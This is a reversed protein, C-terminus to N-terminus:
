QYISSKIEQILKDLGLENCDSILGLTVFKKYSEITEQQNGTKILRATDNILSLIESDADTKDTYNQYLKKLEDILGGSPVSKSSLEMVDPEPETEEEPKAVIKGDEAFIIEPFDTGESMKKVASYFQFLTDPNNASFTIVDGSHLKINVYKGTKDPQLYFRWMVSGIALSILMVAAYPSALSIFFLILITKVPFPIEPLDGLWVQSIGSSWVMHNEWSILSGKIQINSINYLSSKNKRISM